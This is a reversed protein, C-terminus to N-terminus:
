IQKGGYERDAKIGRSHHREFLSVSPKITLEENIGWRNVSM